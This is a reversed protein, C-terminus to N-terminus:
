HLAIPQRQKKALIKAYRRDDNQFLSSGLHFASSFKAATSSTGTTNNM